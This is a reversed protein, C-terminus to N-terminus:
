HVPIPVSSLSDLAELVLHASREIEDDTTLFRLSRSWNEEVAARRRSYFDYVFRNLFYKTTPDLPDAQAEMVDYAVAEARGIEDVRVM